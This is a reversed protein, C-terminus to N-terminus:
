FLNLIFNITFINWFTVTKATNQMLYTCAQHASSFEKFFMFIKSNLFKQSTTYTLGYNSTLSILLTLRLHKNSLSKVNRTQIFALVFLLHVNM